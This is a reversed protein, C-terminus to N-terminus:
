GRNRETKFRRRRKRRARPSWGVLNRFHCPFCHGESAGVLNPACAKRMASGWIRRDRCTAVRGYPSDTMGGQPHFSQFYVSDRRLACPSVRTEGSDRADAFRSIAVFDDMSRLLSARTRATKASPYNASLPLDIQKRYLALAGQRRISVLALTGCRRRSLCRCIM